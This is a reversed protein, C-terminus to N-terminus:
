KRSFEIAKEELNLKSYRESSVIPYTSYVLQIFENWNLSATSEIIKDLTKIEEPLVEDYCVSKKLSFTKKNKGFLNVGNNVSFIDHRSCAENYVDWVFPGYNDFYWHINSIQKKNIIANRWDALYIMKTVRANSLEHKHPYKEIIYAIIQTLKEM